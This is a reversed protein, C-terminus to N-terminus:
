AICTSAGYLHVSGHVDGDEFTHGKGDDAVSYLWWDFDLHRSTESDRRSLWVIVQDSATTIRFPHIDPTQWPLWSASPRLLPKEIDISHSRGETGGEVVLITGDEMTAQMIGWTREEEGAPMLLMVVAPLLFLLGMVGATATVLIWPSVRGSRCAPHRSSFELRATIM